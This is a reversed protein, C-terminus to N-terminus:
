AQQLRQSVKEFSKWFGQQRPLDNGILHKYFNVFRWVSVLGHSLSLWSDALCCDSGVQCELATAFDLNGPESEVLAVFAGESDAVSVPKDAAVAVLDWFAFNVAGLDALFEALSVSVMFFIMMVM